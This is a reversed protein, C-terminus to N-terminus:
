YLDMGLDTLLRNLKNLQDPDIKYFRREYESMQAIFKQTSILIETLNVGRVLEKEMSKKAANVLIELKLTNDLQNKSNLFTKLDKIAIDVQNNDYTKSFFAQESLTIHEEAIRDQKQRYNEDKKKISQQRNESRNTETQEASTRALKRIMAEQLHGFQNILAEKTQKIEKPEKKPVEGGLISQPHLIPNLIPGPKFVDEKEKPKQKLQSILNQLVFLKTALTLYNQALKLVQQHEKQTLTNLNKFTLTQPLNNLNIKSHDAQWESPLDGIFIAELPHGHHALIEKSFAINNKDKVIGFHNLPAALNKKSIHIQNPDSSEKFQKSFKDALDQFPKSKSPDVHGILAIKRGDHEIVGVIERMVEKIETVVEKLDAEVSQIVAQSEKLFDLNITQFEPADILNQNDVQFPNEEDQFPNEETDLELNENESLVNLGVENIKTSISDIKQDSFSAEFEENELSTEQTKEQSLVKNAIEKTKQQIPESEIAPAIPNQESSNYELPKYPSSEGAKYLM